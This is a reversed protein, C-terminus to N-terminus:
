DAGTALALRLRQQWWGVALLGFVANMALAYNWEVINQWAGPDDLVLPLPLSALGIALQLGCLWLIGRAWWAKLGARWLHWALLLQAFATLGFFMRAGFRRLWTYLAGDTGLFTAYVILFLAGVLGCLLLARPRQGLSLLWQAAVLWVALYLMATPIMLMKFLYFALGHRGTASISTCGDLYPNCAAIAEAHLSVLWCLHVAVLPLAAATIALRWVQLVPKIYGPTMQGHQLIM